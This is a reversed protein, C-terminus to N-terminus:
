KVKEPPVLYRDKTPRSNRMYVEWAVADDTIGAAAKAEKWNSFPGFVGKRLEEIFIQRQELTTKEILERKRANIKKRWEANFKDRWKREQATLKKKRKTM